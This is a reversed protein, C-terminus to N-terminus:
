PLTMLILAGVVTCYAAFVYLSHSGLYRLLWRIALYGVVAATLFGVLVPLWAEGLAPMALLDKLAVAGAGLMVPVSMLFSFRAATPRDLHRVM